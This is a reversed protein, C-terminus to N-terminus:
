TLLNQVAWTEVPLLAWTEVPLLAWTEVPLLAQQGAADLGIIEAHAKYCEQCTRRGAKLVAASLLTVCM